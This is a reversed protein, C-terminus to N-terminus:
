IVHMTDPSWRPSELQPWEKESPHDYPRRNINARGAYSRLNEGELRDLELMLTYWLKLGKERYVSQKGSGHGISVDESATRWAAWLQQDAPQQHQSTQLGNAQKLLSVNTPFVLYRKAPATPFFCLFEAPFLHRGKGFKGFYTWCRLDWMNTHTLM